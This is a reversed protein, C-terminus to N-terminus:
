KSQQGERRERLWEKSRATAASLARAEFHLPKERKKEVDICDAVGFGDDARSAEVLKEAHEPRRCAALATSSGVGTVCIHLLGLHRKLGLFCAVSSTLTEGITDSPFDYLEVIHDDPLRFTELHEKTLNMIVRESTASAIADSFPCFDVESVASLPQYGEVPHVLPVGANSGRLRVKLM